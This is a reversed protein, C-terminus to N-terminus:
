SDTIEKKPLSKLIKGVLKKLNKIQCDWITIVKWGSNELEIKVQCDRKKNGSLKKDWFERNTKPLNKGKQCYHGHWFCGHVFIVTKYKPLVIDPKGPMNDKHLRFRYGLNHLIKRVLIEPNTNKSSITAMIESRKNKTFRDM